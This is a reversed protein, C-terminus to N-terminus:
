SLSLLLIIPFVAYCPVECGIQVALFRQSSSCILFCAMLISPVVLFHSIYLGVCSNESFEFCSAWSYILIINFHISSFILIYSLFYSKSPEPVTETAARKFLLSIGSNLVLCYNRDIVSRDVLV